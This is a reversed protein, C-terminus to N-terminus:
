LRLPSRLRVRLGATRAAFQRRARLPASARGQQPSPGTPALADQGRVRRSARMAQDAKSGVRRAACLSPLIGEGGPPWQQDHASGAGKRPRLSRARGQPPSPGKPALADQVRVRRLARMAQDAKSGIRRAACLSPLIGEGGLPRQQDHAGGAQKRPRLSRARGQPPSPGQPALADQGRERRLARMAQNGKSGIRRAACLSPLIGEAGPPWQQDHASRARKRRRLSRARGQPPSPGQPRPCRARARASLRAHSSGGGFWHAKRRM